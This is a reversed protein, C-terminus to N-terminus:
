SITERIKNECIRFQRNTIMISIKDNKQHIKIRLCFRNAHNFCAVFKTIKKQFKYSWSKDFWPKVFADSSCIVHPINEQLAM